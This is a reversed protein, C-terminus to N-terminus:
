SIREFCEEFKAKMAYDQSNFFPLGILVYGSSNEMVIKEFGYRNTIKQLFKEKWGDPPVYLKASSLSNLLSFSYRPQQLAIIFAM